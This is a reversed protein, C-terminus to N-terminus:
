NGRSLFVAITGKKSNGASTVSPSPVGTLIRPHTVSGFLPAAQESVTSSRSALSTGMVDCGLSDKLAISYKDTPASPSGAPKTVVFVVSKGEVVSQLDLGHSTYNVGMTTTVAGTSSDSTWAYTLIADGTKNGLESYYVSISSGAAYAITACALIALISIIPIRTKKM